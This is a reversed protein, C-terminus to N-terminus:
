PVFDAASKRFRSSQGGWSSISPGACMLCLKVFIDVDDATYFFIEQLREEENSKLLFVFLCVFFYGLLNQEKANFTVSPLAFLPSM